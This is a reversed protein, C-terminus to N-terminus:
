QTSRPHLSRNQKKLEPLWGRRKFWLVADAGKATCRLVPSTTLSTPCAELFGGRLMRRAIRKQQVDVFRGPNSYPVLALVEVEDRRLDWIQRKVQVNKQKM